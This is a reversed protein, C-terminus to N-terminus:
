WRIEWFLLDSECSRWYDFSKWSMKWLIWDFFSTPNMQNSDFSSDLGLCDPLNHTKFHMMMSLTQFIIMSHNILFSPMQQWILMQFNWLSIKLMKKTHQSWTYPTFLVTLLYLQLVASCTIFNPEEAPPPDAM